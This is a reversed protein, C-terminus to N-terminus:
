FKFKFIVEIMIESVDDKQDFKKVYCGFEFFNVNFKYLNVVCADAKLIERYSETYVKPLQVSAIPYRGTSLQSALWLPLEVKTNSEIDDSDSSSNLKGLTLFRRYLRRLLIWCIVFNNAKRFRSRESFIATGNGIAM